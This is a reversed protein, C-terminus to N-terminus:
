DNYDDKEDWEELIQMWAKFCMIPIAVALIGIAWAVLQIKKFTRM